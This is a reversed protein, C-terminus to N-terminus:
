VVSKRDRFAIGEGPSVLRMLAEGFLMHDSFNDKRHMIGLTPNLRTSGCALRIKKILSHRKSDLPGARNFGVLGVQRM